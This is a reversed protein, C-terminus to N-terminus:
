KNISINVPKQGELSFWLILDEGDSTKRIGQRFDKGDTLQKGNVSCAARQSGWNKIIFAPNLLPSDESAELSFTCPDLSGPDTKGLLYARESQDYHGGKFAGSTIKMQPAHLWSKALPVLEDAKKDTMGQLMIRTRKSDTFEYDEWNVGTTLNFHSPRDPTIV